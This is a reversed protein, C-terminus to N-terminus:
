TWRRGSSRTPARLARADAGRGSPARGPRQLVPDLRRRAPQRLGRRGDTAPNDTIVTPTTGDTTYFIVSPEGVWNFKFHIPAGSTQAADYEITTAPPTVDNLYELAGQIEGFNGEAFEMTSDHGENALLPNPVPPQGTCATSSFGAPPAANQFCPQFGVATRTIAGTTPNVTIRQAGAEFSYAIIGRKYWNEDASNGAASYLADAIPGTRQPLIVTGRSSKIHSLITDAVKFFYKEIGINPAPLTVRGQSNYAGPAWMFYGGHTHINNAFKIGKFTDGIWHENRIEPRPRRRRAPTSRAPATRTRRGRLRRLAHRDHQQPQPRRGLQQPQRHRRGHHQDPLLGPAHDPQVEHEQAAGTNDYFAAHGGDPNANPLIFINLRDVYEKTTPDTAYNRVLREATELCTIGTVWERAHQQCYFFVGVANNSRDKGIRYVKQTFPGKQVHRADTASRADAPDRHLQRDLVGHRRAPLGVPAGEHEHLDAREHTGTM